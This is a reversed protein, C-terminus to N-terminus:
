FDAAKANVYKDLSAFVNNVETDIAIMRQVAAQKKSKNYGKVEGKAIALDQEEPVNVLYKESFADVKVDLMTHRINSIIARYKGDKTDVTITYDVKYVITMGFTGKESIKFSGNGSFHGLDLQQNLIKNDEGKFSYMYWDFVKSYIDTKSKDKAESIKQYVVSGDQLPPIFSPQEDQAFCKFGILLFGILLIKKM